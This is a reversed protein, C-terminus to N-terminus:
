VAVAVTFRVTVGVAAFSEPEVDAFTVNFPVVTKDFSTPETNVTVDFVDGDCPETDTAKFPVYM